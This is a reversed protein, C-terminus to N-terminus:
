NYSYCAQMGGLDGNNNAIKVKGGFGFFKFEFM